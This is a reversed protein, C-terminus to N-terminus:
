MLAQVKIKPYWPSRRFLARRLREAIQLSRGLAPAGLHSRRRIKAISLERRERSLERSALRRLNTFADRSCVAAAMSERIRVLDKRLNLEERIAKQAWSGPSGAHYLVLEDRIITWPGEMALRFPLEYDEGFRLTEDFYGVRELVERRIAVAQNFLVFRNILVEAPNLWIGCPYRPMTDAIAFTSTKRGNTYIVTCNCLSCNVDPGADELSKVQRELKTPLWLDDSDLLAIIDGKAVSIGRNRAIAPGANVQTVIRIRKGYTELVGRTGDTSGDDVVIVEINPYTQGLVSDISACVTDARNYTPIIVSVLQDTRIAAELLNL